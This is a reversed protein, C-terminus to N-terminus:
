EKPAEPQPEAKKANVLTHIMGGSDERTSIVQWGKAQLKESEKVDAEKTEVDDTDITHEKELAKLQANHSDDLEKLKIAKQEPTYQDDVVLKRNLNDYDATLRKVVEYYKQNTIDSM